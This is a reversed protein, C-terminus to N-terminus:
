QVVVTHGAAEALAVASDNDDDIVVHEQLVGDM